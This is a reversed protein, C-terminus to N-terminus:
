KAPPYCGFRMLSPMLRHTVWRQHTRDLDDFRGKEIYRKIRQIDIESPEEGEYAQMKANIFPNNAANM